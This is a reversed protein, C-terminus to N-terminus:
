IGVYQGHKKGHLVGSSAMISFGIQRVILRSIRRPADMNLCGLGPFKLSNNPDLM